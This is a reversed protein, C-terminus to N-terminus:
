HMNESDLEKRKEYLYDNLKALTKISIVIAIVSIIISILPLYDEM